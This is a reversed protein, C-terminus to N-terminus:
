LESYTSEGEMYETIGVQRFRLTALQSPISTVAGLGRRMRMVTRTEGFMDPGLRTVAQEYEDTLIEYCSVKEM